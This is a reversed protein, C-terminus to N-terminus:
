QFFQDFATGNSDRFARMEAFLGRWMERMDKEFDQWQQDWESRSVGQDQAAPALMEIMIYLLIIYLLICVGIVLKLLLSYQLCFINAQLKYIELEEKTEPSLEEDSDPLVPPTPMAAPILYKLGDFTPILHRLDELSPILYQIYGPRPILYQLNSTYTHDSPESTPPTEMKEDM